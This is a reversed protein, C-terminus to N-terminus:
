PREVICPSVRMFAIASSSDLVVEVNSDAANALRKFSEIMRTRYQPNGSTWREEDVGALTILIM